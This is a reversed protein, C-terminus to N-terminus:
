STETLRNTHRLREAMVKMVQLAFTPHEQVLYGFQREDVRAVRADTLATATASRDSRDILAMEGLIAGPGMTEIARDHVTLLIEGELVAYMCDGRDGTRFLVESPRLEVLDKSHRFLNIEIM